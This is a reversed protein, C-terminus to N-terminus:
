FTSNTLQGNDYTTFGIKGLNYRLENYKQAYEIFDTRAIVDKQSVYQGDMMQEVIAKTLRGEYAMIERDVRDRISDLKANLRTSAKNVSKVRQTKQDWELPKVAINTSRSAYKNIVFYRLYIYAEGMENPSNKLFFSGRPYASRTRGM